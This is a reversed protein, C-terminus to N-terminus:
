KNPPKHEIKTTALLKIIGKIQSQTDKLDAHKDAMKETYDRLVSMEDHSRAAAEQYELVELERSIKSAKKKLAHRYEQLLEIINEALEVSVAITSPKFQPSTSM